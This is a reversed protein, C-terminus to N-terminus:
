DRELERNGEIYKLKFTFGTIVWRDDRRALRFDYSGVFTRTNRGSRTV